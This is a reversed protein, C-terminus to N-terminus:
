LANRSRCTWIWYWVHRFEKWYLHMHCSLCLVWLNEMKDNGNDDRPIMHAVTIFDPLIKMAYLTNSIGFKRVCEIGCLQCIGKDRHITKTKEIGFISSYSRNLSEIM